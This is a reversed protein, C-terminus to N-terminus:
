PQLVRRDALVLIVALFATPIDIRERVCPTVALARLGVFTPKRQLMATYATLYELFADSQSILAYRAAEIRSNLM